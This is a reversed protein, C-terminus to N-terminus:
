YRYNRKYISGFISDDYYLDYFAGDIGTNEERTKSIDLYYSQVDLDIYFTDAPEQKIRHETSYFNYDTSVSPSPGAQYTTDWFLHRDYHTRTTVSIGKAASAEGYRIEETVTVQDKEKLLSHQFITLFGMATLLLITFIALAKKM